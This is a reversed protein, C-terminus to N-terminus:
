KGPNCIHWRDLAPGGFFDGREANEGRSDSKLKPFLAKLIEHRGIESITGAKTAKSIATSLEINFELQRQNLTEKVM